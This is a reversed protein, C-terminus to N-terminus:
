AETEEEIVHTHLDESKLVIILIAHRNSLFAELGKIFILLARTRMEGGYSRLPLGPMLTPPWMASHLSAPLQRIGTRAGGTSAAVKSPDEETGELTQQPPRAM